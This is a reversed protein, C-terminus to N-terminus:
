HENPRGNDGVEPDVKSTLYPRMAHEIHMFGREISEEEIPLGLTELYSQWFQANLLITDALQELVDDCPVDLFGGDVLNVLVMRIRTRHALNDKIYCSKLLPDRALLFLLERHFFRYKFYVKVLHHQHQQVSAITDPLESVELETEHKMQEYLAFIIAERNKFHYHLNGPSIGAAKAIHNTTAAQTNGRNFLALAADLIRKKTSM